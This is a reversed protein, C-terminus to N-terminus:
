NSKSLTYMKKIRGSYVTFILMLGAHGSLEVVSRYIVALRLKRLKKSWFSIILPAQFYLVYGCSVVAIVNIELVLLLTDCVLGGQVWSINKRKDSYL